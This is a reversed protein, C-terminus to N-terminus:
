QEIEKMRIHALALDEPPLAKLWDRVPETGAPTRYFAAVIKQLAPRM